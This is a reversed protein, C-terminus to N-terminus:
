GVLSGTGDVASEVHGTRADIAREEAGGVALGHGVSAGISGDFDNAPGAGDDAARRRSRHGIAHGGAMADDGVLRYLTMRITWPKTFVKEDHLTAEYSMTHSSAPTFREVVRLGDSHFNGARDLWTQDNQGTTEVVLTNGEWRGWSDGFWPRVNAPLRDPEGLRIIRTDHIMKGSDDREDIYHMAYTKEGVEPFFDLRVLLLDKISTGTPNFRIRM